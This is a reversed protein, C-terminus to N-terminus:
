FQDRRKRYKEIMIAVVRENKGTEGRGRGGYENLLDRGRTKKKGLLGRERKAQANGKAKVAEIRRGKKTWQKIV